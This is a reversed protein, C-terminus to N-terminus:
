KGGPLGWKRKWKFDYNCTGCKGMGYPVLLGDPGSSYFVNESFCRECYPKSKDLKKQPYQKEINKDIVPLTKIFNFLIKCDYRGFALSYRKNQSYICISLIGFLRGAKYGIVENLPLNIYEKLGVDRLQAAHQVAPMREVYTTSYTKQIPNPEQIYVIRESTLYLIGVGAGGGFILHGFGSWGEGGTLDKTKEYSIITEGPFPVKQM